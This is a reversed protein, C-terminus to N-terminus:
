LCYSTLDAMTGQRGLPGGVPTVKFSLNEQGTDYGQELGLDAPVARPQQPLSMAVGPLCTSCTGPWLHGHPRDVSSPLPSYTPPKKRRKVGKRYVPSNLLYLSGAIQLRSYWPPTLWPGESSGAQSDRGGEKLILIPLVIPTFLTGLLELGSPNPGQKQLYPFQPLSLFIM